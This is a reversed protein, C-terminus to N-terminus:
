TLVTPTGLRPIPDVAIGAVISLLILGILGLMLAFVVHRWNTQSHDNPDPQTM